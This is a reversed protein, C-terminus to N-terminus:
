TKFVTKIMRVYRGIILSASFLVSVNFYWVISVFKSSEAMEILTEHAMKEANDFGVEFLLGAVAVQLPRRRLNSSLGDM